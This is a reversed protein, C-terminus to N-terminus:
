KVVEFKGRGLVKSHEDVVNYIYMGAKYNATELTIKNNTMQFVGLNRGTVDMIQVAYAKVSISFSVSEKAPTPYVTVNNEVGDIDNNIL